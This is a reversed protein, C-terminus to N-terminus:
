KGAYAAESETQFSPARSLVAREPRNPGILPLWALLSLVSGVDIACPEAVERMEVLVDLLDDFIMEIGDRVMVQEMRSLLFHDPEFEISPKARRPGDATSTIWTM